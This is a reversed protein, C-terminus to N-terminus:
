QAAEQRIENAFDAVDDARQRYKLRSSESISIGPDTENAIAYWAKALRELGQARVEALFADTTPTKINPRYETDPTQMWGVVWDKTYYTGDNTRYDHSYEEPLAKLAAYKGDKLKAIFWESAYFGYPPRGEQLTRVSSNILGANEAAMQALKMELNDITIDTQRGYRESEILRQELEEYTPKKM